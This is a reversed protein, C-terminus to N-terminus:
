QALGETEPEDAQEEDLPEDAEHNDNQLLEDEAQAIPETESHSSNL